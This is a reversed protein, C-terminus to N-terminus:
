KTREIRFGEAKLEDLAFSGTFKQKTRLSTRFFSGRGRYKAKDRARERERESANERKRAIFV